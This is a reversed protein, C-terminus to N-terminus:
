TLKVFAKFKLVKLAKNKLLSKRQKSYSEITVRELCINIKKLTVCTIILEEFFLKMESLNTM